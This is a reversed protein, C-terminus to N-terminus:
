IYYIIYNCKLNMMLKKKKEKEKKKDDGKADTKKKDKPNKESTHEPAKKM